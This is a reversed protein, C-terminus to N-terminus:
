LISTSIHHPDSARLMPIISFRTPTVLTSRTSDLTLCRTFAFLSLTTQHNVAHTSPNPYSQTDVRDGSSATVRPLNVRRLRLWSSLSSAERMPNSSNLTVTCIPWIPCRTALLLPKFQLSVYHKNLCSAYILCHRPHTPAWVHWRPSICDKKDM